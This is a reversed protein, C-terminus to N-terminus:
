KRFVDFGKRLIDEGFRRSFVLATIALGTLLFILLRIGFIETIAGSFLVPLVTVVTALFWYNGFVRGRLGGPTKEQLFTQSPILVGVFSLGVLFVGVLGTILRATNPLEALLFTFILLVFAIITLFLEIARKKRWGKKLLRSITLTGLAAGIGAPVIVIVGASNIDIRFIENALVPLSVVVISLSVSLGMMLVFPLLISHNERIFKYGEMIRGFFKLVARDLSKPVTHRTKM